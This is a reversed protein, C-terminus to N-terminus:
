FPPAFALAAESQGWTFPVIREEAPMGLRVVPVGLAIREALAGSRSAGEADHVPALANALIMEAAENEGLPETFVAESQELLHIADLEGRISAVPAGTVSWPLSHVVPGRDGCRIAIRDGVARMPDIRRWGKAAGSFSAEAISCRNGLFVIARGERAIMSGRLVLGGTRLIRHLVLLEDLPHDLPSGGGALIQSAHEPSVVVEGERFDADFRAVRENPKQGHVVIVWDSGDRGIEFTHRGSSYAMSEELTPRPEGVRVGVYLDPDTPASVTGSIEGERDRWGLASPVEIVMRLGALDLGRLRTRGM